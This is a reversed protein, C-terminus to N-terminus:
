EDMEYNAVVSQVDDLDELMDLLKLLTEGDKGEVQVTNTPIYTLEGEFNKGLGELGERVTAFDKPDTVVVFIEDEDKVDEAGAEIAAEFLEEEAIDGNNFTFVGKEEFQFAVSGNAGLNGGCKSFAHRIESVTRNKNDTLTKIMVAVGAPGYGEYLIEEYDAGDTDGAGKSIAREINDNPVSQSKAALVATKLRPNGDQSAGGTKAAVQIEKLLKTFLKGRKADNAAKKRKITSWKSHGAM